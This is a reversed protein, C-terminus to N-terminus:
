RSELPPLDYEYVTWSFSAPGGDSSLSLAARWALPYRRLMERMIREHPRLAAEPRENWIILDVPNRRFFEMMEEATVFNSSYDGGFWNEHALLKNPRLLYRDPRHRSQSVFEAIVPGELNPPVLVRQAARVPGKVALAVVEAIPDQPMRALHRFQSGVFAITLMAACIPVARAWRRGPPIWALAKSWGAFAAVLLVAAPALLYRREPGVPSSILFALNGAFLLSLVVADNRWVRPRILTAILGLIVVAMLAPPFIQFTEIPFSAVRKLTLAQPEAPLGYFALKRTWLAWPGVMLAVIVPQALFSPKKLLEFRRLLLIALFPLAVTYAASYKSLIAFGCCVAWLIGNRLLPRELYRLLCLAAAICLFTSMHDAMVAGMWQRVAPLSLYLAGACVGAAAGTGRRVLKFVLWGSGAAFLTPVLLAQARGVGAVLMWLGTLASFLPPWYGLAFYPYHNYYNRAFELPALWRGSVLWDRVMVAGVFHAPEDPYGLFGASWSGSLGQLAV